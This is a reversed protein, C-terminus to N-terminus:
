GAFPDILDVGCSEFDRVNRTALKTGHVSCTAAIMADAFQIPRGLRQRDCVITAFVAAVSRDIDLIRPAFDTLTAEIDEMLVRRRRGEPLALVGQRLEAETIVSLYLQEAAQRSLWQEVL